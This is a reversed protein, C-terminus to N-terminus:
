RSGGIYLFANSSFPGLRLGSYGVVCDRNPPALARLQATSMLILNAEDLWETKGLAKCALAFTPRAFHLLPIATHHEVPFFRNPVTILVRRAVRAMESVFREQAVRSGVHELVANSTAIDFTQDPFPLGGDAVIRRYTISPYQARFETAEGLGVATVNQLHPWKRELVNAAEGLVDSVGVDLITSDPTPRIISVFDDYIRDRAWIVVREGLSRSPAVQYYKEDLLEASM